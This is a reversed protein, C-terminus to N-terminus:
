NQINKQHKQLIVYEIGTVYLTDSKCSSPSLFSVDLPRGQYRRDGFAEPQNASEIKKKQIM